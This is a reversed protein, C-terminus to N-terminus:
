VNMQKPAFNPFIEYLPYHCVNACFTVQLRSRSNIYDNAGLVNSYSIM